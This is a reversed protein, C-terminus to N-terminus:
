PAVAGPISPPGLMPAESGGAGPFVPAGLTEGWLKTITPGWDAVAQKARDYLSQGAAINNELQGATPLSPLEPIPVGAIQATRAGANYATAFANMATSALSPEAPAMGFLTLVDNVPRPPKPPPPLKPARPVHHTAPAALEARMAMVVGEVNGSRRATYARQMAIAYESMSRNNKQWGRFFVGFAEPSITAPLNLKAAVMVGELMALELEEEFRM